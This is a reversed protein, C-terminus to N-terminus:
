AEARRGNSTARRLWAIAPELRKFVDVQDPVEVSAQVRSVAGALLARYEDLTVGDQQELWERDFVPMAFQGRHFEIWMPKGRAFSLITEWDLDGTGIPALYRRMLTGEFTLYADDLHLQEIYSAIRRTCAVADEMRCAVNVPDHAVGLLDSGVADIIRLIEFSSIEEHTKILLRVGTERIIPALTRIGAAVGVLQEKWGVARNDRDEIRGVVFFLTKAGLSPMARLVKALGAVVDGDGLRILAENRDPRAPNFVGVGAAVMMSRQRAAQAVEKLGDPDLGPVAALIDGFMVGDMGLSHAHEVTQAPTRDASPPLSTDFIGIM